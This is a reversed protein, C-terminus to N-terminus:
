LIYIYISISYYSMFFTYNFIVIISYQYYSFTIRIRIYAKSFIDCKIMLISIQKVIRVEQVLTYKYSM